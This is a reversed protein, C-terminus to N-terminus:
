PQLVFQSCDGDCKVIFTGSPDRQINIALTPSVGAVATIRYVRTGPVVQRAPNLPTLTLTAVSDVRDSVFLSLRSESNGATEGSRQFGGNEYEIRYPYEAISGTNILVPGLPVGIRQPTCGVILAVSCLLGWRLIKNM